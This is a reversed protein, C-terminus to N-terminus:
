KLFRGYKNLDIQNDNWLYNRLFMWQANAKKKGGTGKKKQPPPSQNTNTIKKNKLFDSKLTNITRCNCQKEDPIERTCQLM